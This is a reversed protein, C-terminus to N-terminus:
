NERRKWSDLTLILVLTISSVPKTTIRYKNNSNYNLVEEILLDLNNKGKVDNFM